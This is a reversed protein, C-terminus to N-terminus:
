RARMWAAEERSTVITIRNSVNPTDILLFARIAVASADARNSKV